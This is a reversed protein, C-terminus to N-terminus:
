SNNGEDDPTKTIKVYPPPILKVSNKRLRKYLVATVVIKFPVAVVIGIGTSWLVVDLAFCILNITLATESHDSLIKRSLGFSESIKASPNDMLVYPLFMFVLSLILSAFVIIWFLIILIIFISKGVLAGFLLFLIILLGCGVCLCGEKTVFFGFMCRGFHKWVSRHGEIDNKGFVFARIFTKVLTIGCIGLLCCVFVLFMWALACVACDDFDEDSVQLFLAVYVLVLPLLVGVSTIATLKWWNAKFLSWSEGFIDKIM